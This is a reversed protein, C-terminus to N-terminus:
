PTLNKGSKSDTHDHANKHNQLIYKKATRRDLGTRQAVAEYTGLKLYLLACYESLLENANLRGNEIEEGLRTMKNQGRFSDGIYTGTLLIRRVAQELERVNGRWPYDPGSERRILETIEDALATNEEGQIRTLQNNVLLDLEKPDEELRQRLTPLTVIDSCLRYYFDERFTGERRLTDIPKNTAAIVRGPFRIKDYSGLPTFTRDQLIQLLKVQTQISVDGIEDLFIIGHPRCQGFVGPHDAVAGTFAGKKHGFLESEILSEPYQSLNIPIFNKLFSDTFTGNKVDYPIFGAQGIASAAAGKGTGTEGLFLTSFDEMRDWLKTGFRRTDFTFITGWLHTRLRHMSRSNGVLKDRIFIYARQLQFFFAFYSGAEEESFGAEVLEKVVNRGYTGPLPKDGASVQSEILRNQLDVHRHFIDFLQASEIITRDEGTYLTIDAKNAKRLPHLHRHVSEVTNRILQQEPTMGEYAIIKHGAVNKYLEQREPTFPNSFAAQDVFRFFNRNERSLKLPRGM